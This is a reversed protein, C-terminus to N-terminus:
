VSQAHRDVHTHRLSGTKASHTLTSQAVDGNSAEGAKVSTIAAKGQKVDSLHPATVLVELGRAGVQGVRAFQMM